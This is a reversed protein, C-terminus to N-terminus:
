GDTLALRLSGDAGETLYGHRGLAQQVAQWALQLSPRQEPALGFVEIVQLRPLSKM